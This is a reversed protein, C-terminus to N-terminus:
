CVLKTTWEISTVPNPDSRPRVRLPIFSFGAGSVLPRAHGEIDGETAREPGTVRTDPLWARM